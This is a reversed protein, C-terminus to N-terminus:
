LLLIYPITNILFLVILLTFAIPTNVGGMTQLKANSDDTSSSENKIKSINKMCHKYYLKNDNFGVIINIIFNIISLIMPALFIMM